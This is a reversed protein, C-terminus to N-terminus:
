SQLNLAEVIADHVATRVQNIKNNDRTPHVRNTLLVVFLQKEPDVWISTGTFGTHGFSRPSFYRGSSSDPTPVNWGLARANATLASASTFQAITARRLVRQHAYIGGNLLMQCFAALDAATSFMGAHGAVGGMVWANEDHVEGRLLRRRFEADHETPAIRERWGEPPNFTTSHMGLPEFIRERALQDLARGTLRAIIEGLLIFGVDSYVSQTGPASVLPEAVVRAVLDRRTALTKFYDVHAPLGSTHTLLHRVTVRAREDVGSAVGAAVGSADPWEPVLRAVPADLDLQGAEALMAALTVTVVPKTLSAADYLTDPTVDASAAEYTQQGFARIFLNGRHGVAAVGGPFAGNAVARDLVAWAAGLKQAQEPQAADLTMAKACLDIGDGLSAAGPVNVPIRGGTAIQGFLARAAARQAVEADSFAALWTQAEPFRAIIYPSGFCVVIVPKAPERAAGGGAIPADHALLRHVLEAQEQPLGVSGKRDAVRVFLAVIMVDYSEPPPIARSNVESFRTDFRLAELFDVRWGLEREFDRGPHVSPDGAIAVLLARAPRTADLPLLRRADRLLTIGRDAIDGAARKFEARGFVEPLANVDVHRRRHLGLRAKARLVRRVAADIRSEPLRGSAAADRLGGLAADPSPPTLLLAAVGAMDLSDTVILGGFNLEERLLGTTIQASLTAPVTADSELAPAAIHGTMITGVGASIAARFPPLEVRDFHTRNNDVTPLDLHSDIDTDGHGPFHKATALAGDEEAGGIYAEVFAAVRQPDEGFSRVNIIPNDPNSNVDAVPAFIWPVGAARAEIATIRGVTHADEPRGTAAVAMAHPFSTGEALRMATGREFDAAVLLPVKALSQLRNVLAATPYVQSREIGYAGARTAIMLGGAHNDKIEHALRQFEPDDSSAFGGFGSVM